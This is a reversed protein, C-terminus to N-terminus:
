AHIRKATIKNAKNVFFLVRYRTNTHKASIELIGKKTLTEYKQIKKRKAYEQM